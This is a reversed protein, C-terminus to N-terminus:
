AMKVMAMGYGCCLAFVAFANIVLVSIFLMKAFEVHKYFLTRVFSVVSDCKLAFASVHSCSRACPNM